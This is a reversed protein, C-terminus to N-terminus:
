EVGQRAELTPEPQNPRIKKMENALGTVDFQATVGPEVELVMVRHMEMEQILLKDGGVSDTSAPYSWLVGRAGDTGYGLEDWEAHEEKGDEFEFRLDMLKGKAPQDYVSDWKDHKAFSLFPAAGKELVVLDYKGDVSTRKIVIAGGLHDNVPEPRWPQLSLQGASPKPLPVVSERASVASAPGSSAQPVAGPAATSATQHSASCGFLILAFSISGLPLVKKM